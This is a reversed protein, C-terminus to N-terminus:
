RSREIDSGRQIARNPSDSGPSSGERRNEFPILAVM